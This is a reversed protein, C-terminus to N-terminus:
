ITEEAMGAKTLFWAEYGYGPERFTIDIIDREAVHM